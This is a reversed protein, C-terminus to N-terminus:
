PHTGTVQRAGSGDANMVWVEMKGSRNSQFAIRGGDPFWAPVEDLYPETHAALKRAEGTAADVIWIHGRHSPGNSVQVALRQGDFSWAPMQASGEEPPMHTLAHDFTGDVNVIHVQLVRTSDGFTYAIRRGDPSWASNWATTHGGGALERIATGDANAVATVTSTWPGTLFAAQGGDPSLVPNRGALNAVATPTGGDPSIVFVTGSDPGQGAFRIRGERSWRPLGAGTHTLQREGTGDAGIVYLNETGDRDSLFAILSGDPSVAPIGNSTTRTAPQQAALALPWATCIAVSRITRRLASRM